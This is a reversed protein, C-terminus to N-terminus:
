SQTDFADRLLIIGHLIEMSSEAQQFDYLKTWKM